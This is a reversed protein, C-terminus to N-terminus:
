ADEAHNSLGGGQLSVHSSLVMLLTQEARMSLRGVWKGVRHAVLSSGTSLLPLYLHAKNLLFFCSSERLSACILLIASPDTRIWVEETDLGEVGEHNPSTTTIVVCRRLCSM